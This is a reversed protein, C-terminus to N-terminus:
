GANMRIEYNVSEYNDQRGALTVFVREDDRLGRVGRLHWQPARADFRVFRM